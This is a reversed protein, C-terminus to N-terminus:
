MLRHIYVLYRTWTDLYLGAGRPPQIDAARCQQSSVNNTLSTDIVCWIAAGGGWWWWWGAGLLAWDTSMNMMKCQVQELIPGYVVPRHQCLCLNTASLLLMYIIYISIQAENPSICNMTM